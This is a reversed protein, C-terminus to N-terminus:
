FISEHVLVCGRERARRFLDAQAPFWERAFALDTEVVEGRNM